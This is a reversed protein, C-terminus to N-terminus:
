EERISEEVSEAKHQPSTEGKVCSWLNRARERKESAKRDVEGMFEKTGKIARQGTTKIDARLESGSKPAFLLGAVGGLAGGILLGTLFSGNRRKGTEM